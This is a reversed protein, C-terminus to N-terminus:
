SRDDRRFSGERPAQIDEGRPAQIDEGRPAQIDEGRPAQIGAARDPTALAPVALLLLALGPALIRIRM